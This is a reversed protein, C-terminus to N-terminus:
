VREHGTSIGQLFLDICSFDRIMMLVNALSDLGFYRRECFINTRRNLGGNIM